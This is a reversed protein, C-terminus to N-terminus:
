IKASASSLTSKYPANQAVHSFLEMMTDPVNISGIFANYNQQVDQDFNVLMTEGMNPELSAALSKVTRTYAVQEKWIEQAYQATAERNRLTQARLEEALSMWEHWTSGDVHLESQLVRKIQDCGRKTLVNTQLLLPPCKTTCGSFQTTLLTKHFFMSEIWAKNKKAFDMDANLNQCEKEVLSHTDVGAIKQLAAKKANSLIKLQILDLAQQPGERLLSVEWGQAQLRKSQEEAAYTTQNSSSRRQIDSTRARSRMVFLQVQTKMDPADSM